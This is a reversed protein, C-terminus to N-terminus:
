RQAEYLSLEGAPAGQGRAQFIHLTSQGSPLIDYHGVPGFRNRTKFAAQGVSAPTVEDGAEEVRVLADIILGVADYANIAYRDPARGFKDEFDEYFEQGSPPYQDAALAPTVYVGKPTGAVLPTDVAAGSKGTAAEYQARANVGAETSPLLTVDPIAGETPDQPRVVTRALPALSVELMDPPRFTANALADITAIPNGRANMGSILVLRSKDTDHDIKDLAMEAARRMDATRSKLPGSAPTFIAIGRTPLESSSKGCAGLTLAVLACLAAFLVKKAGGM